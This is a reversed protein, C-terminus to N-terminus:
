RVLHRAVADIVAVLVGTLGAGAGWHPAHAKAYAWPGRSHGDIVRERYRAVVLVDLPNPEEGSDLTARLRHVSLISARELVNDLEQAEVGNM